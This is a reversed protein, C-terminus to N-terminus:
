FNALLQNLTGLFSFLQTLNKPVKTKSNKRRAIPKLEKGHKAQYSILLEQYDLKALIEIIPM